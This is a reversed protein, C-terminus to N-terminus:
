QEEEGGEVSWPHMDLQALAVKNSCVNERSRTPCICLMNVCHPGPPRAASNSSCSYMKDSLSLRLRFMKM